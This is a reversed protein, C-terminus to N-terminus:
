EADGGARGGSRRSARLAELEAEVEALPRAPIAPIVEDFVRLLRRREAESLRGIRAHYDSVAERVIQSKPKSLREASEAIKAVTDNDLTFTVKTTAM